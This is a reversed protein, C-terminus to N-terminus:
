GDSGGEGNPGPERGNPGPDQGDAGGEVKVAWRFDNAAISIWGPPDAIRGRILWDDGDDEKDGVEVVRVTRDAPLEGVVASDGERHSTVRTGAHTIQYTGPTVEPTQRLWPPLVWNEGVSVAAPIPEPPLLKAHDTEQLYERVETLVDVEFASPVAAPRMCRVLLVQELEGKLRYLLPYNDVEFRYQGLDVYGKEEVEAPPPLEPPGFLLLAAPSVLTSDRLWVQTTEMKEAYVFLATHDSPVGVINSNVSSPHMKVEDWSDVTVREYVRRRWQAREGRALNPYFGAAIIGRLVELESEHWEQGERGFDRGSAGPRHTLWGVGRLQGSLQRRISSVENLARITVGHKTVWEDEDPRGAKERWLRFARAVALQDSREDGFAMKHVESNHRTAFIPRAGTTAAITLMPEELGFVCAFLLMKALRADCPLTALHFGLPTMVCSSDPSRLVAGLRQLSTIASGVGEAEPPQVARQLFDVPRDVGLMTSQLVIDELPSRVMEPTQYEALGARTPWLRYVKGSQVRGARGARQRANSMSIQVEKLSALSNGPSWRREKLKGTDVVYVVDSVTISTEAVNTALVIKRRGPPPPRFVRCQQEPTMSGHLQLIVCTRNCNENVHLMDAVRQIEAAGTLFVLVAGPPENLHIHEVVMGVLPYDIEDVPIEACTQEVAPMTGPELQAPSWGNGSGLPLTYGIMRVIEELHYPQVPYLRGPVAIVPAGGFYRALLGTDLTASMVIIKPTQRRRSSDTPRQWQTGHEEHYYYPSGGDPDTARHWGEPLPVESGFFDTDGGSASEVMGRLLILLFDTLMGREHVEDVIIHSVGPLEPNSALTRLLVGTTCFLVRTGASRSNSGRVAHGITDGVQEGREEAVRAAVSVASVRRPQTCVIAADGGRSEATMEDLLFQPVQTTKGCGTEGQLIVVPSTRVARLIEEKHAAIPLQARDHRLRELEHAVASVKLRHLLANSAREKTAGHLQRILSTEAHMTQRRFLRNLVARNPSALRRHSDGNEDPPGPESERESEPEPAPAAAAAEPEEEGDLGDVERALRIDDPEEWTVYGGVTNHYYYDGTESDKHRRWPGWSEPAASAWRRQRLLPLRARLLRLRM